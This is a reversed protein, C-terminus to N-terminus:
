VIARLRQRESSRARRSETHTSAGSRSREHSSPGASRTSRRSSSVSSRWSIWRKRGSWRAASTRNSSPSWDCVSIALTSPTRRSFTLARMNWARSVSMRPRSARSLEHASTRSRTAVTRPLSRDRLRVRAWISRHGPQAAKSSSTLRCRAASASMRGTATTPSSFAETRAEASPPPLPTAAAPAPALPLPATTELPAAAAPPPVAAPPPLAVPASAALVAAAPAPELAAPIVANDATGEAATAVPRAAPPVSSATTAAPALEVAITAFIAVAITTAVATTPTFWRGLEAEDGAGVLAFPPAIATGAPVNSANPGPAAGARGGARDLPAIVPEEAGLGTSPSPSADAAGLGAVAALEVGVARDLVAGAVLADLSELEPLGAVHEDDAVGTGLVAGVGVGDDTVVPATLADVPELVAPAAAGLEAAAAEVSAGAAEAPEVGVGVPALLVGLGDAPTAVEVLVAVGEPVVGAEVPDVVVALPAAPGVPVVEFTEAAELPALMKVPAGVPDHLEAGAPLEAAVGLAGAVAVPVVLEVVGGAAGPLAVLEVAGDPVGGEVPVGTEVLGALVDPGVVVGATGATAGPGAGVAGSAEVLEAM